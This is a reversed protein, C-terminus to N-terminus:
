IICKNDGNFPNTWLYKKSGSGFIKAYATNKLISHKYPQRNVVDGNKMLWKMDPGTYGIFKMGLAEYGKGDFKNFDCYSFVNIPNYGNIFHKFIKNIGGIVTINLKSCSRIIEWKYKPHKSFSMLEVLENNYFLGYTIKANRHGQLHNKNNFPKAEQNTIQKIICDRAYIRTNSKNICNKLISEIIPRKIPNEWEYEWVHILHINKDQALKSKEFHYNKTKYFSSHWYNGNFEIGINTIPDFLDIEKKGLIKYNLIFNVNPFLKAITTEYSSFNIKPKINYYKLIQPIRNFSKINFKIQTEEISHNEKIYFKEFEDKDIRKLLNNLSEGGVNINNNKLLKSIRISNVKYENAIDAINMNYDVYKKIIDNSNLVDLKQKNLLIKSIEYHKLLKNLIDPTLNFENCTEQHTHKNVIYYKYLKEKPINKISQELNCYKHINFYSMVKHINNVGINFKNCVDKISHNQTIYYEYLEDKNIQTIKFDISKTNLSQKQKHINYSKLYKDLSYSTINFHERTNKHSHNQIIYYEYLVDKNIEMLNNIKVEMYNYMIYM